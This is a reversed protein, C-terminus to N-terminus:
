GCAQTLIRARMDIASAIEVPAANHRVRNTTKQVVLPRDDAAIALLHAIVDVDFVHAAAIHFGSFAERVLFHMPLCEVEAEFTGHGHEFEDFRNLLQHVTFMEFGVHLVGRGTFDARLVQARCFRMANQVPLRLESQLLPQVLRNGPIALIQGSVFFLSSFDQKPLFM